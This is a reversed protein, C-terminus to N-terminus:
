PSGIPILAGTLADSENSALFLLLEAISKPKVWTSPDADPMSTRNAPTDITTPLIGNVTVGTGALELALVRILAVLGSKSVVYAAADPFPDVAARAAIHVIRGSHREIMHPIVARSLFFASTLNLSLMKQWLSADTDAIRGTAFGGVLNILCDIRGAQKLSESVAQRVDAEDTVDAAVTFHRKGADHSVHREVAVLTAGAKLLTPAVTQGLGGGAGTVMVVKGSLEMAM